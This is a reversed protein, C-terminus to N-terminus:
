FAVIYQATHAPAYVWGSHTLTSSTQTVVLRALSSSLVHQTGHSCSPGMMSGHHGQPHQLPLTHPHHLQPQPHAHQSMCSQGNHSLIQHLPLPPLRQSGKKKKKKAPSGTNQATLADSRCPLNPFTSHTKWSSACTAMAVFPVMRSHAPWLVTYLIFM